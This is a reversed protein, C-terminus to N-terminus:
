RVLLMKRTIREGMMELTYLYVGSAVPRNMHDTGDWIIRNHGPNYNGERLVKILEGRVNYIKLTVPVAGTGPVDFSIETQPNFPNPYNQSLFMAGPILIDGAPDGGEISVPLDIDVEKFYVEWNGSRYDQWVMYYSGESYSLKPFTSLGQSTVEPHDESWHLGGDFSVKKYISSAGDRYDEWVVLLTDHQAEIANYWTNEGSRSLKVNTIWSSGGDTSRSFYVEWHGDRDDSWVCYLTSDSYALQPFFSENNTDDIMSKIEIESGESTFFVLRSRTIFRLTEVSYLKDSSIVSPTNPNTFVYPESEFLINIWEGGLNVSFYRKKNDSLFVASWLSDRLSTAPINDISSLQKDKLTSTSNEPWETGDLSMKAESEWVWASDGAWYQDYKYLASVVGLGSVDGSLSAVTVVKKTPDITSFIPVPEVWTNGADLSQSYMINWAELLFSTNRETWVVHVVDGVAEIFASHSYVGPPSIRVEDNQSYGKGAHSNQAGEKSREPPDSFLEELIRGRAFVPDFSLLEGITPCLDILDGRVDVTEGAKFDPGVAFFPVKRCGYCADGHWEFDGYLPSHRGHACTIFLATKGAYVTDTQVKTWLLNILSDVVMVARTYDEWAISDPLGPNGVHQAKIDPEVFSITMLSPQHTNMIKIAERFTEDDDNNPSGWVSGAYPNGYAPHLSNNIGYSNGQTGLVAWLEDQPVSRDKRYYEFVTPSLGRWEAGINNENRRVGMVTSFTGTQMGTKALNFFNRHLVGQPRINEWINPIYQHTSDEFAESSRVGGMFIIIVKETSYAYVSAAGWTAFFLLILYRILISCGSRIEKNIIPFEKKGRMKRNKCFLSNKSYRMENNILNLKNDLEAM